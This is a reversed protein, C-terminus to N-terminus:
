IRDPIIDDLTRPTVTNAICQQEYITYLPEWTPAVSAPQVQGDIEHGVLKALPNSAKVIGQPFSFAYWPERLQFRFKHQRTPVHADQEEIAVEFPPSSADGVRQERSVDALDPMVRTLLRNLEDAFVTTNANDHSLPNLLIDKFMLLDALPSRQFATAGLYTTLHEELATLLEDLMRPKLEGTNSAKFAKDPPLCQKTVSECYSRLSNACATYNRQAYYAKAKDFHTAQQTVLRPQQRGHQADGYLEWVCWKSGAGFKKLYQQFLAFLSKEHTLFIVQYYNLLPVALKNQGTPDAPDPIMVEATFLWDLMELRNSMDLSILVDDFCLINFASGAAQARVMLAGVRMAFALRTLRAENLYTQPRYETRAAGGEHMEVGLRISVSSLSRLYTGWLDPAENGLLLLIGLTFGQNYELKIQMRPLSAAPLSAQTNLYDNTEREIAGILFALNTEFATWQTNFAATAAAVARTLTTRRQKQRPSDGTARPKHLKALASEAQKMKGHLDLLVPLIGMFDLQAGSGGTQSFAKHYPLIDRVFSGWVNVDHRNSGNFHQFLRYTVFDSAVNAEALAADPGAPMTLGIESDGEVSGAGVTRPRKWHIRVFADTTTGYRNRLSEFTDTRQPDYEVFYKALQLPEKNTSEILTYLAWYISSKGSGNNGYILAHKGKLLFEQRQFAKFNELTLSHIRKQNM